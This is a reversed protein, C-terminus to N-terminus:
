CRRGQHVQWENDAFAGGGASRLHVRGVEAGPSLAQHREHGHGGDEETAEDIKRHAVISDIYTMDRSNQKLFHLPVGGIDYYGVYRFVRLDCKPGHHDPDVKLSEADFLLASAPEKEHWVQHNLKTAGCRCESHRVIGFLDLGRAICFHFCDDPHEMGVDTNRYFPLGSRCKGGELDWVLCGDDYKSDVELDTADNNDLFFCGVPAWNAHHKTVSSPKVEEPEECGNTLDTDCVEMDCSCYEHASPRPHRGCFEDESPGDSWSHCAVSRMKVPEACGTTTCNGWPGAVWNAPVNRHDEMGEEIHASGTHSFRAADEYTIAYRLADTPFYVLYELVFLRWQVGYVRM